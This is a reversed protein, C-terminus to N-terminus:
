MDQLVPDPGTFMHATTPVSEGMMVSGTASPHAHHWAPHSHIGWEDNDPVLVDMIGDGDWEKLLLEGTTGPFDVIQLDYQFRGTPRMYWVDFSGDGAVLIHKGM